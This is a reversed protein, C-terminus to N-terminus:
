CRRTASARSAASTDHIRFEGWTVAGRYNLNVPGAAAAVAASAAHLLMARTQDMTEFVQDSPFASWIGKFALADIIAIAGVHMGRGPPVSPTM